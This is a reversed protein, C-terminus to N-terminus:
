EGGKVPLRAEVWGFWDSWVAFVYHSLLAPFIYTNPYTYHYKNKFSFLMDMLYRVRVCVYCSKYWKNPHLSTSDFLNLALLSCLCLCLM